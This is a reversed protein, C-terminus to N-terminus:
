SYSDCVYCVYGWVNILGRRSYDVVWCWGILTLNM